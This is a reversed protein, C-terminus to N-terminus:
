LNLNTPAHSMIREVAFFSWPWISSAVPTTKIIDSNDIAIKPTLNAPIEIGYSVAPSSVISAEPSM